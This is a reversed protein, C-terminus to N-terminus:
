SARIVYGAGRVTHFLRSGHADIKKRLNKVHVDVVNSASDFEFDWAHSLIRDRSLVEGEHRMFYELLAFEKTTLSVDRGARMVRRTAPELELDGVVLRPPVVAPPRRLLSRVRAVLEAFAFPKVLYDDAGSDLGAVRDQVADRATLMLVPVDNGRDRMTRCITMGDVGPLVIDLVVLDYEEEGTLRMLARRGDGLVDVAYGERSLGRQLARALREEDEVVLLRVVRPIGM